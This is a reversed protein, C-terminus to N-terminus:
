MGDTDTVWHIHEDGNIKLAVTENLQRVLFTHPSATIGHAKPLFSVAVALVFWLRLVMTNGIGGVDGSSKTKSSKM